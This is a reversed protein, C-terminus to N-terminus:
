SRSRRRGIKTPDNALPEAAKPLKGAYRHILERLVATETAQLRECARDLAAQDEVTWRYTKRNTM